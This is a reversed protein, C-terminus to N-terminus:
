LLVNSEVNEKLFQTPYDMYPTDISPAPYVSSKMVITHIKYYYYDKSLLDKM